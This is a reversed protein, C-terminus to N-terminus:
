QHQLHHSIRDPEWLQHHVSASPWEGTSGPVFAFKNQWFFKQSKTTHVSSSMWRSLTSGFVSNQALVLLVAVHKKRSTNSSSSTPFNKERGDLKGASFTVVSVGAESVMASDAFSTSFAASFM